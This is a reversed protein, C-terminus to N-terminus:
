QIQTLLFLIDSVPHSLDSPLGNQQATRRQHAAGIPRIEIFKRNFNSCINSIISCVISNLHSYPPASNDPPSSRRICHPPPDSASGTETHAPPDTQVFPASRLLSRWLSYKGHRTPTSPTEKGRLHPPFCSCQPVSISSGSADISFTGCSRSFFAPM